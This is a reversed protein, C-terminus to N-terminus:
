AKAGLDHSRIEYGRDRYFKFRERAGQRDEEDRGVIEVLRKFSGFFDPLEARLNLLVEDHAPAGGRHDVIVPTTAALRHEAPCHPVFGTAQASWLLRSFREASEADSCYALVRLGRQYAKATLVCATRLKDEVGFYFDIETM